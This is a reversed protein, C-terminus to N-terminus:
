DDRQDRRGRDGDARRRAGGTAPGGNGEPRKGGRDRHGGDPSVRDDTRDGDRRRDDRSGSRGGDSRNANRHDERDGSRDRARDGQPRNGGGPNEDREESRDREGDPPRGGAHAGDRNGPRDRGGDGSPNRTGTRHDGHPSRDDRGRHGGGDAGGAPAAGDRRPDGAVNGGPEAGPAQPATAAPPAAPAARVAPPAPAAVAVAARSPTRRVARASTVAAPGGSARVRPAAPAPRPRATRAAPPPASRASAPRPVRARSAVPAAAVPAPPALLGTRESRIVRPADSFEHVVTGGGILGAVTAGLVGAVPLLRGAGGPTGAAVVMEPLRAEGARLMLRAFPLPVVGWAASRANRLRRRARFLAQHVANESTAMRRAIEAAPMGAQDLVLARRQRPPLAAVEQLTREAAERHELVDGPGAAAAAFGDEPMPASHRARRREDLALNRVVRFLWRRDDDPGRGAAGQEALRLYAEQVVDEAHSGEGGLVRRAFALLEARHDSPDTRAAVRHTPNGPVIGEFREPVGGGRRGPVTGLTVGSRGGSM